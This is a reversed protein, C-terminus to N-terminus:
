FNRDSTSQELRQEVWKELDTVRYRIARQSIRVYQPGDGRMRRSQLFRPTFGLLEAARKECLLYTKLIPHEM